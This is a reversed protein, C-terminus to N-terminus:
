LLPIELLTPESVKQADRVINAGDFVKQACKTRCESFHDEQNENAQMSRWPESTIKQDAETRGLIQEIRGEVM